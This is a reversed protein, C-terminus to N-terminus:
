VQAKRDVIETAKELYARHCDQDILLSRLANDLQGRVLCNMAMAKSHSDALEIRSLWQDFKKGMYEASSEADM